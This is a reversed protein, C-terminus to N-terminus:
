IYVNLRAVEVTRSVQSLVGFLLHFTDNMEPIGKIHRTLGVLTELSPKCKGGQTPKNTRSEMQSGESMDKPIRGQQQM